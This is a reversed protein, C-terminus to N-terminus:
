FRKAVQAKNWGRASKLVLIALRQRSSYRPRRRPDITAFRSDKIEIEQKLLEVESRLRDIEARFRLESCEGGDPWSRALMIALRAVAIIHLVAAVAFGPWGEPLPIKPPDSDDLYPEFDM